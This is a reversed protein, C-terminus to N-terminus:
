SFSFPPEVFSLYQSLKGSNGSGTPAQVERAIGFSQSVLQIWWKFHHFVYSTIPPLHLSVGITAMVEAFRSVCKKSQNHM